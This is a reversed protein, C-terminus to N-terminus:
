LISTDLGFIAGFLKAFVYSLVLLVLGIIGSTIKARGSKIKDPEGGSMIFDYGGWILVLFLIVGATPVLFEMIRNILGGLTTFSVPSKIYVPSGTTQIILNQALYQPDM